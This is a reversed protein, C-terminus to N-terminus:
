WLPSNEPKSPIGARARHDCVPNQPIANIFACLRKRWEDRDFVSADTPALLRYILAFQAFLTATDVAPIGRWAKPIPFRYSFRCPTARLATTTLTKHISGNGYFLIVAL